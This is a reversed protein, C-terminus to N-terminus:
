AADSAEDATALPLPVLQEVLDRVIRSLRRSERARDAFRRGALSEGDGTRRALREAIDAQEELARSAAWLVAELSESHNEALADLSYAHGVRCRFRVTGAEDLEVLMGHCEPCTFVSLSEVEGSDADAPGPTADPMPDGGPRDGAVSAILAALGPIDFVNRTHTASIASRPMSPYPATGPDQVAVVGGREGVTALGVAGDHLTGTLIVGALAHGYVASATRLLPDVAPRHGNEKPGAQVRIVPGDELTLHRDPPAVYVVGGAPADGDVAHRAELQGARALIKPLVSPAAPSLHLVVFVPVALDRPLLAVLESLAEVGGASTGIAV